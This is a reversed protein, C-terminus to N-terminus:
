PTQIDAGNPGLAKNTKKTASDRGDPVTRTGLLGQSLTQQTLSYVFSVHAETSSGKTGVPCQVVPNFPGSSVVGSGKGWGVWTVWSTKSLSLGESSVPLFGAAIPDRRGQGLQTLVRLVQSVM